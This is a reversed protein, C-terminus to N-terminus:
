GEWYRENGTVILEQANGKWKAVKWYWEGRRLEIWLVNGRKVYGGLTKGERTGTSRMVGGGKGVGLEGGKGGGLLCEEM